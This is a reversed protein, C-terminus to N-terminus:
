EAGAQLTPSSPEIGLPPVMSLFDNYSISRDKSVNYTLIYRPTNDLNFITHPIQANFVHWVLPQYKLEVIEKSSAHTINTNQDIKEFIVFSNKYDDLTLNINFAKVGDCHWHYYTNAPFKFVNLRGKLLSHFRRLFNDRFILAQDFHKPQWQNNRVGKWWDYNDLQSPLLDSIPSSIKTNYFYEKM